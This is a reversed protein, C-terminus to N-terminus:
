AARASVAGKAKRHSSRFVLGLGANRGTGRLMFMVDPRSARIAPVLGFIAAAALGALATFFLVEPDIKVQDLRPLNAQTSISKIRLSWLPRSKHM